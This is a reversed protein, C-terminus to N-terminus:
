DECISEKYKYDFSGFIVDKKSNECVVVSYEDNDYKKQGGDYYIKYGITNDSPAALSLIEDLTILKDNLAQELTYTKNDKKLVIKVEGTNYTYYDHGDYTFRLTKDSIDPVTTVQFKYSNSKNIRILAVMNYGLLGVGVLTLVIMLYGMMKIDNQFATLAALGNFVIMFGLAICMGLNREILDTLSLMMLAITIVAIVVLAINRRNRKM